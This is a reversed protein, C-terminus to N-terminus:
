ETKEKFSTNWTKSEHKEKINEPPSSDCVLSNVRHRFTGM